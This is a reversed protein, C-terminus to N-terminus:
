CNRPQATVTTHEVLTGKCVSSSHPHLSWLQMRRLVLLLSNLYTCAFHHLKCDVCECAAALFIAQLQTM